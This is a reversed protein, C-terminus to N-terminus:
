SNLKPLEDEDCGELFAGIEYHMDEATLDALSRVELFAGISRHELVQKLQWIDAQASLLRAFRSDDYNENGILLARRRTLWTM